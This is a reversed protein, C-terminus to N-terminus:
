QSTDIQTVIDSLTSPSSESTLRTSVLCVPTSLMEKNKKLFMMMMVVPMKVVKIITGTLM